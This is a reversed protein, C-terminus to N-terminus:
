TDIMISDNEYPIFTLDQHHYDVRFAVDIMEHESNINTTNSTHIIRMVSIGNWEALANQTNIPYSFTQSQGPWMM